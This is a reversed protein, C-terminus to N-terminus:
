MPLTLIADRGGSKRDITFKQLSNSGRLARFGEFPISSTGTVFQPPLSPFPLSLACVNGVNSMDSGDGVAGFYNSVKGIKGVVGFIVRKM